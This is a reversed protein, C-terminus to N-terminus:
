KGYNIYTKLYEKFHKKNIQTLGSIAMRWFNLNM